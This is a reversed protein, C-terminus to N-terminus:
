HAAPTAPAAPQTPPSPTAPPTSSATTGSQASAQAAPKAFDRGILVDVTVAKDGTKSFVMASSGTPLMGKQYVLIRPLENLAVSSSASSQQANAPTQTAPQAGTQAAPQTGAPTAPQTGAPAPTASGQNSSQPAGFEYTVAGDGAGVSVVLLVIQDPENLPVSQSQKSDLQFETKEYADPTAQWTARLEPGSKVSVSLSMNITEGM